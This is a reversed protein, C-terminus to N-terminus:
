KVNSNMMAKTEMNREFVIVNVYLIKLENESIQLLELTYSRTKNAEKKVSQPQLITQDCTWSFSLYNQLLTARLEANGRVKKLKGDFKSQVVKLAIISRACMREAFHESM